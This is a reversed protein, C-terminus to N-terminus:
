GEQKVVIAVFQPHPPYYLATDSIEAVALFMNM